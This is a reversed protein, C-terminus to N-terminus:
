ENVYVNELKMGLLGIGSDLDSGSFKLKWSKCSGLFYTRYREETDAAFNAENWNSDDFILDNSVYSNVTQSDYINSNNFDVYFDINFNNKALNDIHLYCDEVGKKRVPEGFHFFPTEFYWDIAAGAFTNGYCEKIIEGESTGTYVSNEFLCACTIDQPVTRTIWAKNIADYILCTKFNGNFPLYFMVRKKVNDSVSFAENLQSTDITKFVDQVDESIESSLRIENNSGAQTLSFIGNDYFFQESEFNVAGLPSDSGKTTFPIITFNDPSSDGALLYVNNQRHIALYSKYPIICKIDSYDNHFNSISGGDNIEDTVWSDHRGLSSYYLTGGKALWLRGGWSCVINSQVPANCQSIEAGETYLFPDDSSNAVIVGGKFNAYSCKATTSLGSKRLYSYHNNVSFFKGEATNYVLRSEDEYRYEFIGLIEHGADLYVANGEAVRIGTTRDIEVNKANSWYVKKESQGIAVKSKATSLGGSFDFYSFEAM